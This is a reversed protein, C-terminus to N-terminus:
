WNKLDKKYSSFLDKLKNLTTKDLVDKHTKKLSGAISGLYTPLQDYEPIHGRLHNYLHWSNTLFPKNIPIDQSASGGVRVGLTKALAGKLIEKDKEYNERVSYDKNGVIIPNISKLFEERLKEIKKTDDTLKNVMNKFM